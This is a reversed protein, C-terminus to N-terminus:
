EVSFEAASTFISGDDTSFQKIVRYSGEPLTGYHGSLLLESDRSSGAPLLYLGLSVAPASDPVIYWKSGLRAELRRMADYTCDQQLENKFRIPISLSDENIEGRVDLEIDRSIENDEFESLLLESSLFRRSGCGSLCLILMLTGLLASLKKM